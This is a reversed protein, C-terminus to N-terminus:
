HSLEESRRKNMGMTMYAQYPRWMSKQVRSLSNMSGIFHLNFFICLSTSLCIFYFWKASSHILGPLSLWVLRFWSFRLSANYYYLHETTYAVSNRLPKNHLMTVICLLYVMIMSSRLYATDRTFAFCYNINVLPLMSYCNFSCARIVFHKAKLRM